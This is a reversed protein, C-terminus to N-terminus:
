YQYIEHYVKVVRTLYEKLSLMRPFNISGSRIRSKERLARIIAFSLSDVSDFDAMFGTEGEVILEEIPPVRTAIVPTKYSIAEILSLPTNDIWRSPIITVDTTQFLPEVNSWGLWEVMHVGISNPYKERLKKCYDSENAGAIRLLVPESENLLELASFILDVGKEPSVRGIYTITFPQEIKLNKSQSVPNHYWPLITIREHPCGLQSFFTSGFKSPTFCHTLREIVRTARDYHIKTRTIANQTLLGHSRFTKGIFPINVSVEAILEGLPHSVLIENMRGLFRSRGTVICSACKIPEVVGNCLNKNGMVLITRMCSIGWDHNSYITPIKMRQASELIWWLGHRHQLHVIDPKLKSLIKIGFHIANEWDNESLEAGGAPVDYSEPANFIHYTIGEREIELLNPNKSVRPVPGTWLDNKPWTLIEVNVGFDRVLSLAQLFVNRNSGVSYPDVYRSVFLIKM